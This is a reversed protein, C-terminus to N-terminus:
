KRDNRNCICYMQIITTPWYILCCVCVRAHVCVCVRVCYILVQAVDAKLPLTDAISVPIANLQSSVDTGADVDTSEDKNTLSGLPTSKGSKALEDSDLGFDTLLRQVSASLNSADTTINSLMRKFKRGRASDQSKIYKTGNPVSPPSTDDDTSATIAKDGAEIAHGGRPYRHSHMRNTQNSCYM